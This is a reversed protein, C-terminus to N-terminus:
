SGQRKNRRKRVLINLLEVGLSFGMGFYIYGKPIHFGLGDAVLFVGILMVFNLALMKLTPYNSIFDSIYKASVMMVVMAITMAAVIVYVQDTLGIATIVSDFSFVIDILVIQLITRAFSGKYEKMEKVQQGSVEEHISNTATYILFGGGALMLLDKGSLIVGAISFLPETLGMIWVMGFLMAVRFFLALSLGIFRAKQRQEPPLHQVLLAIFIVNDIGLVIELATLSVFSAVLGLDM